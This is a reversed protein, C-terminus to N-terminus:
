AENTSFVEQTQIGSYRIRYNTLAMKGEFTLDSPAALGVKDFYLLVTEGPM